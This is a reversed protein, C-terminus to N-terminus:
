PIIDVIMGLKYNYERSGPNFHGALFYATYDGGWGWHVHLFMTSGNFAWDHNDVYPDSEEWKHCIYDTYLHVGDCVWAHGDKYIGIIWWGANRGGRLIVPRGAKLNNFVINAQYEDNWNASRYGYANRLVQAAKNTNASSGDCEYKMDVHRGIDAMLRATEDSGERNPMAAWNFTSPYRHFAMIQATAVAVCGVPPKGNDYKTCGEDSM